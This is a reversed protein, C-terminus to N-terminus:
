ALIRSVDQVTVYIMLALVMAWGALTSPAEDQGCVIIILVFYALVL